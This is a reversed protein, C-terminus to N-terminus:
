HTTTEATRWVFLVIIINAADVIGVFWDLTWDVLIGFPRIWECLARKPLMM